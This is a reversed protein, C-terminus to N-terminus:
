YIYRSSENVNSGILKMEPQSEHGKEHGRFTWGACAARRSDFGAFNSREEKSIKRVVGQCHSGVETYIVVNILGGALCPMADWAKHDRESGAMDRGSCECSAGTGGSVSGCRNHTNGM